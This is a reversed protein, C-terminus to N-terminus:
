LSPPHLERRRRLPVAGLLGDQRAAWEPEPEAEDSLRSRGGGDSLSSALALFVDQVLAFPRPAFPLQGPLQGPPAPQAGDFRLLRGRYQRAAGPRGDQEASRSIAKSLTRTVGIEHLRDKIRGPRSIRCLADAAVRASLFDSQWLDLMAKLEALLSPDRLLEEEGMKRARAALRAARSVSRTRAVAAACKFSFYVCASVTLLTVAWATRRFVAPAM